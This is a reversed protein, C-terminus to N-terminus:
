RSPVGDEYWNWPREDAARKHLAVMSRWDGVTHRIRHSLYPLIRNLPSVSLMARAARAKWRLHDPWPIKVEGCRVYCPYTELERIAKAVSLFSADDIVLLGGVKLLRTAYFCDIMTHDFTHFGDIFVFDFSGTQQQALRPLVFESGEPILEFCNLGERQLNAIGASEFDIDQFPDIITHMAGPRGEVAGCISLASIGYACGVELTRVIDPHARLINVIFDSEERSINLEIEVTRGAPTLVRGTRFITDLADEFAM